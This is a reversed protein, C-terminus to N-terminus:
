NAQTLYQAAMKVSAEKIKHYESVKERMIQDVINDRDLQWM